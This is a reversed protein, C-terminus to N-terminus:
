KVRRRLDESLFEVGELKQINEIKFRWYRGELGRGLNAKRGTFESLYQPGPKDDVFPTIKTRTDTNLYIKPVRKSNYIGFDTEKTVITGNIATGMDTDGELLYLGDEKVGYPKGGITIIHLFNFNSYRTSETTRVNMVYAVANATAAKGTGSLNLIPFPLSATAYSLGFTVFPLSAGGSAQKAGGGQLTFSLFPLTGAEGSPFVTGTASINFAPAAFAGEAGGYGILTSAIFGANANGKGWTIGTGSLTSTFFPLAAHGNDAFTGTGDFTFDPWALDDETTAGGSGALDLVLFDMGSDSQTRVSGIGSLSTDLFGLFAFNGLPPFSGLTAYLPSLSVSAQAYAYPTGNSTYHGSFLLAAGGVVSSQGFAKTTDLSSSAALVIGSVHVDNDLSYAGSFSLGSAAGLAGAGFVTRIDLVATTTLATPSVTTQFGVHSTAFAALPLLQSESPAVTTEGVLSIINATMAEFAGAIYTFATTIEGTGAQAVMAPLSGVIEAYAPYGSTAFATLSGLSATVGEPSYATSALASTSSINAEGFYKIIELGSVSVLGVASIYDGSGQSYIGNHKLLSEAVLDSFPKPTASLGSGAALDGARLEISSGFVLSADYIADGAAYLSVDLLLENSSPKASVYFVSGNKLYVVVDGARSISFVDTAVFSLSGTKIAGQEIVRYYGRTFHIGYSIESYHSGRSDFIENMGVVAGVASVSSLFTATFDGSVSKLSRASANWGLNPSYSITYADPVVDYSYYGPITTASTESDEVYVIEFVPSGDIGVVHSFSVTHPGSGTPAYVKETRPYGNLYADISSHAYGFYRTTVTTVAPHWRKVTYGPIIATETIFSKNITNTM